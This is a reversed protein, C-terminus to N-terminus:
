VQPAPLPARGKSRAILILVAPLVVVGVVLCALEGLVAILGFLGVSYAWWGGIACATLVTVLIFMVAFPRRRERARARADGRELTVGGLAASPEGALPPAQQRPPQM